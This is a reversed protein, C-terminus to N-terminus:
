EPIEIESINVLTGRGPPSCRTKGPPALSRGGVAHRPRGGPMFALGDSLVYIYIVIPTTKAGPKEHIPVPTLVNTAM